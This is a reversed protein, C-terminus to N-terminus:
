KARYYTKGGIERKEMLGNNVLSELANSVNWLNLGSLITNMPNSTNVKFGLADFVSENSFGRTPDKRLFALIQGQLSDRHIGTNWEDKGVSM